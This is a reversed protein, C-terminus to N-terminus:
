IPIWHNIWEDFIIENKPLIDFAITIRPRDEFLWESSKHLDGDSKSIVLLNDKNKVDLIDNCNPIKYSTFSSETDVCYFGHWSNMNSEWHGHWDIYEGKKFYNLWCQIYYKDKVPNQNVKWFLLSIENYLEHFGDLPYLLLNYHSYLKTPISSKGSYTLTERIFKKKILNYM